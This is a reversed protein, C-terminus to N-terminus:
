DGYKKDLIITISEPYIGTIKIGRPVLIHAPTISLTMVRARAYKLDIHAKIQRSALLKISENAGIVRVTLTRTIENAIKMNHPINSIELPIEFVAETSREFMVLVWVLLALLLALIKLWFNRAVLSRILSSRWNPVM